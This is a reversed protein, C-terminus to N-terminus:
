NTILEYNQVVLTTELSTLKKKVSPSDNWNQLFCVFIEKLSGTPIHVTKMEGGQEKMKGALIHVDQCAQPCRQLNSILNPFSWICAIEGQPSVAIVDLSWSHLKKVFSDQPLENTFFRLLM